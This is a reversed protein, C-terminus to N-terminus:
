PTGKMNYRMGCSEKDLKIFELIQTETSYRQNKIKISALLNNNHFRWISASSVPRSTKETIFNIIASVPLLKEGSIAHYIAFKKQKYPGRRRRMPAPNSFVKAGKKPGFILYRLAPLIRSIM